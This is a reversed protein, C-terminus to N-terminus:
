VKAQAKIVTILEAATMVDVNPHPVAERVREAVARNPVVFLVRRRIERPQGFLARDRRLAKLANKQVQERNRASTEVEVFIEEGDPGLALADPQDKSGGQQVISVSYGRASLYKAALDLLFRHLANGGRRSPGSSDGYAEWFKATPFFMIDDPGFEARLFGHHLLKEMADAVQYDSVPIGRALLEATVKHVTAGGLEKMVKIVNMVTSEDEEKETIEVPQTILGRAEANILALEAREEESIEGGIPPPVTGVFPPVVEDINTKLLFIANGRPLFTVYKNLDEHGPVKLSDGQKFDKVSHVVLNGMNRVLALMIDRKVQEPYQTAYVQGLGLARGKAAMEKITEIHGASTGIEDYVLLVLRREKSGGKRLKVANWIRITIALSVMVHSAEDLNGLDIIVFKNPLTGDVLGEIDLNEEKANVLGAVVPNFVFDKFRNWVANITLDSGPSALFDELSRRLVPDVMDAPPRRTSALHELTRIFDMPTPQEKVSFLYRVITDILRETAPARQGIKEGKVIEIFSLLRSVVRNIGQERPEDKPLSFWNLSLFSHEFDIYIVDRLLRTVGFRAKFEGLVKQADTPKPLIMFVTARFKDFAELSLHTHTTTKGSGPEGLLLFGRRFATEDIRVEVGNVTCLLIGENFGRRLLDLPAKTPPKYSRRVRADGMVPPRVFTALEAASTRFTKVFGRGIVDKPKAKVPRLHTWESSLSLLTALRGLDEPNTAWVKVSTYFGGMRGKRLVAEARRNMFSDREKRLYGRSVKLKERLKKAYREAESDWSGIPKFSVQVGGAKMNSLLATARELWTTDGDEDVFPLADLMHGKLEAALVGMREPYKPGESRILELDPLAQLFAGELYYLTEEDSGYLYISVDGGESVVELGMEGLKLRSLGSLARVMSRLVDKAEERKLDIFPVRVESFPMWIARCLARYLSPPLDGDNQRADM